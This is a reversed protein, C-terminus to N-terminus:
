LSVRGNDTVFEWVEKQELKIGHLLESAVAICPQRKGYCDVLPGVPTFRVGVKALLRVLGPEMLAYWHTIGHENSMDVIAKFLGLTINSCSRQHEGGGELTPTRVIGHSKRKEKERRRFQRTVAFRSIEGLQERAVRWGKDRIHRRLIEYQEVPFAENPNGKDFLILRVTAVMTGTPLHQLLCQVSRKDYEDKEQQDPYDNAYLYSKEVCYVQYRIQQSLVIESTYKAPVISFYNNFHSIIENM